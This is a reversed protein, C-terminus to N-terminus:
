QSGNWSSACHCLELCVQMWKLGDPFSRVDENGGTYTRCDGDQQRGELFQHFPFSTVKPPPPGRRPMKSPAFESMTPHSAAVSPATICQWSNGWIEDQLPGRGGGSRLTLEAPTLKFINSSLQIRERCDTSFRDQFGHHCRMGTQYKLPLVSNMNRFIELWSDSVTQGLLSDKEM